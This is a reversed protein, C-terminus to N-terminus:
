ASATSHPPVFSVTASFLGAATSSPLFPPFARAALSDFSCILSIPRRPASTRQAFSRLFFPRFFFSFGHASSSARAVEWPKEFGNLGVVGIVTQEPRERRIFIPIGADPKLALLDCHVAQSEPDSVSSPGFGTSQMSTIRWAAEVRRMNELPRLARIILISVSFFAGCFTLADVGRPKSRILNSRNKGLMDSPAFFKACERKGLFVPNTGIGDRVNYLPLAPFVHGLFTNL